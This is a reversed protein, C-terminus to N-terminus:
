YQLALQGQVVQRNGDGGCGQYYDPCRARQLTKNGSGDRGRQWNADTLEQYPEQGTGWRTTYQTHCYTCRLTVKYRRRDNHTTIGKGDPLGDENQQEDPPPAPTRTFTPAPENPPSPPFLNNNYNELTTNGESAWYMTNQVATGRTDEQWQYANYDEQSWLMKSSTMFPTPSHNSTHATPKTMNDCTNTLNPTPAITSSSASGYTSSSPCRTNKDNEPTANQECTLNTMSETVAWHMEQVHRLENTTSNNDQAQRLDM